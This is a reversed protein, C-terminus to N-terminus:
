INFAVYDKKYIDSHCKVLTGTADGNLITQRDAEDNLIEEWQDTYAPSLDLGKVGDPTDIFIVPHAGFTAKKNIYAGRIIVNEGWRELAESPKVFDDKKLEFNGIGNNIKTHKTWSM